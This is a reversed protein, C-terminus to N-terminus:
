PQTEPTTTSIQDQLGKFTTRFNELRSELEIRRLRLETEKAQMATKKEYARSEEAAQAALKEPLDPVDAGARKILSEMDAIEQRLAANRHQLENIKELNPTQPKCAIVLAPLVSLLAAYAPRYIKM